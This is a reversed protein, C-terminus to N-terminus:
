SRELRATQEVLPAGVYDRCRVKVLMKSKDLLHRQILIANLVPTFTAGRRLNDLLEELYRKAAQSTWHHLLSSSRLEERVKTHALSIFGKRGTISLVKSENRMHSLRMFKSESCANASDIGSFTFRTTHM